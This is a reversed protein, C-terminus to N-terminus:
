CLVPSSSQDQATAVNWYQGCTNGLEKFIIAVEAPDLIWFTNMYIYICCVTVYMVM